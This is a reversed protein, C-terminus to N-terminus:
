SPLRLSVNVSNRFVIVSIWGTNELDKQSYYANHQTVLSFCVSFFFYIWDWIYMRKQWCLFFFLIQICSSLYLICMYQRTYYIGQIKRCPDISPNIWLLNKSPKWSLHLLVTCSICSYVLNNFAQATQPRVYKPWSQKQHEILACLVM